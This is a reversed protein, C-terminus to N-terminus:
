NCRFTWSYSGGANFTKTGSASGCCSTTGTYNYTGAPVTYTRNDRAPISWNYSAPGSLELNLTCYINNRVTVEATGSPRTTPTPMPAATALRKLCIPLYYPVGVAPPEVGGLHLRGSGYQNDKGGSGLDMARGELFGQLQSVSYSPYANKVLAAAGAVHPTAASTGNFGGAGYSVTSVNAYAAIDPKTTGGTPIGGSGLTPGQSSYSELPYPSSVDVAGVTIANPSDAPFCLSRAAVREDLGPMKAATLTLYVNRSASHRTVVVGYPAEYPAAVYIFEEPTQGGGGNQSYSSGTVYTWGSGTWRYLKMDYDQNVASWDDWHLCAKIPYGAPIVYANGNGPGFFNINQNPAWLHNGSGDNAFYGDYHVEADNGAATAYFIGHARANAVIDALYGTGDGPGSLCWGLSMSIIDVGENILDNVANALEVNTGVKYLYMAAQPAVDHVIEACATGHKSGGIGSGTYDRTSVSAPLDTGLLATYGEFGGDVVAVKVGSGRYGASHWASANSVAVGETTRAGVSVPELPIARRPDRVLWVDARGALSELADIPVLAQLLTQYDGQYEGGLAEVTERIAAMAERDAVVEVQVREDRLVMERTEAFTQAEAQGGRRYAELLQNLSTGLKPNGRAPKEIDEPPVMPAVTITSWGTPEGDELTPPPDGAGVTSSSLVLAIALVLGLLRMLWARVYSARLETRKTM